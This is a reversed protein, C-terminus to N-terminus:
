NRKGWTTTTGSPVGSVTGGNAFSGVALIGCGHPSAMSTGSLTAYSGGKYTSYISSGPEWYDVPAGYNSFSSKATSSTMSAITYVNTANLRAPSYYSCDDDSNGAAMCVKIGAAGCAEVADDLDQLTYRSGPGVSYNAVDGSAGNAALYDFASISWSFYGSGRNDLVRLPVLEVGAAVGVVGITNKIAGVTGSVHTGHGNGDEVSSGGRGTVWSKGRSASVNLDPHDTDIGTDIIWATVTSSSADEYGGVKTIGWPTTEAPQTTGGGGSGPKGKLVSMPPLSVWVDPHIREVRPDQAIADAQDPTIGELVFGQIAKGWVNDVTVNDLHFKKAVDVARDNVRDILDNHALAQVSEGKNLVADPRLVVIYRGPIVEGSQHIPAIEEEASSTPSTETSCAVLGLSLSLGVALFLKHSRFM